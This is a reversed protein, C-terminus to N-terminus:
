GPRYHSQNVKVKVKVKIKVKVMLPVIYLLNQNEYMINMIM